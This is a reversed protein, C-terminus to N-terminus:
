IHCYRTQISHLLVECSDKMKFSIRNPIFLRCVASPIYSLQCLAQMASLFGQIMVLVTDVLCPPTHRHCKPPPPLHTLIELDDDDVLHAQAILGQRLLFPPFATLSYVIKISVQIQTSRSETEAIKSSTKSVHIFAFLYYRPSYYLVQSVHM